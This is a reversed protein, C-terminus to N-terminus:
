KEQTIVVVLVEEGGEGRELIPRYKVFKRRAKEVFDM